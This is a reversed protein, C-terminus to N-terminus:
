CSPLYDPDIDALEREDYFIHETARWVCSKTPLLRMAVVDADYKYRFQAARNPDLTTGARLEDLQYGSYYTTPFPPHGEFAPRLEVLWVTLTRVM